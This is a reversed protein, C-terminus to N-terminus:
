SLRLTLGNTEGYADRVGGKAIVVQEGHRATIPASWRLTAPSYTAAVRRLVRGHRGIVEVTASVVQGTSAWPRFSCTKCILSAGRRALDSSLVVAAVVAGIVQRRM